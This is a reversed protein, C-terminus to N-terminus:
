KEVLLGAVLAKKTRPNLCIALQFGALPLRVLKDKSLTLGGLQLNSKLSLHVLKDKPSPDSLNYKEKKKASLHTLSSRVRDLNEQPSYSTLPFPFWKTM